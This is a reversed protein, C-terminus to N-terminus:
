RAGAPYCTQRKNDWYSEVRWTRNITVTKIKPCGPACECIDAVECGNRAHYGLNDRDTFAEVMEHSLCWTCANAFARPNAPPRSGCHWQQIVAWFLNAHGSAKGFHGYGHYGCVGAGLTTHRPTFIVYLLNTENRRPAAAVAGSRIWNKLQREIYARKPRAPLRTDPDPEVVSSGVFRGDGVGYQRLGAMYRGRLIGRFFRNMERVVDPHRKFYGDWYVAYVRPSSM